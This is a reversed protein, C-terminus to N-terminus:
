RILTVTGHTYYTRNDEGIAHIIYYYVGETALSGSETRGDWSEYVSHLEAIKTGWRNYITGKFYEIGESEFAFVNNWEDNDPSFVNPINLYSLPENVRIIVSDMSVCGNSDTVSLYYTTTETPSAVPNQCNTCSLGTAPNWSYTIGGQGTLQVSSGYDITTDHEATAAPLPLVTVNISDDSAGCNNAVTVYYWTDTLPNVSISSVTDGTSWLLDGNGSATLVVVDGICIGTDKSVSLAPLYGVTIFISDSSSGCNNSAIVSYTTNATPTVVITSSTDGTNWLYSSAGTAILQLSDGECIFTNGSISVTPNTIVTITVSVLSSCSTTDIISVFYTTTSDPYAQPNASNPDSLGTTPSWSYSLGGSIMLTVTDGECIATDPSITIANALNITVSANDTFCNNSVTVTYTTTVSPTAVPNAIFPDSLGTAPSWSYSYQGGDAVMKMVIPQDGTGNVKIEEYVGPTIPFNSSHSTGTIALTDPFPPIAYLQISDGFCITTDAPVDIGKDKFLSIRPTYYDNHDGGIYTIGACAPGNGDATLHALFIEVGVDLITQFNGTTVPFDLSQTYGIIYAEDNNNVRIGTAKEDNSGGLYTCYVLANGTPSIRAAFADYTGGGHTTQFAGATVPFDTSATFGSVFAEDNDNIDIGMGQNPDSGDLDSGGIYTAYILTDGSSNMRVAFADRAGGGYVTQFAGATTPFNFGAEGSVFAEGAENVAIDHGYDYGPGGVYTIYSISNGTAGIKAIFVDNMGGSSIQYAGATALNSSNTRGTIFIEGSNHLALAFAWDNGSGGLYSSYILSTGTANLKCYIGDYLGGGLTAQSSNVTPFDTSQTYGTVCAEGVDNVCIGWGKDDDSGGIYSTYILNTGDPSLKSVFLDYTGGGHNSQYVGTSTPFNIGAQGVIYIYGNVDRAVDRSYNIANPATAKMYTSWILSFPDIILPQRKDYAGKIEFSFSHNDTLIYDVSVETKIGNIFQFAYPAEDITTGWAHHIILSGTETLSLHNIGEYYLEINQINSGPQLVFDYKLHHQFHYYRLDINHYLNRYTLLAYEPVSTIFRSPDNGKLYHIQSSRGKTSELRTAPNAGLFSLNWVLYEYIEEYTEGTNQVDMAQELDGNEIERGIIFSLRNDLFRVSTEKVTTRYLVDREWQGINKEFRYPLNDFLEQYSAASTIETLSTEKTSISSHETSQGLCVSFAATIFFFSFSYHKM